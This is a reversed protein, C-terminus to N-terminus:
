RRLWAPSVYGVAGKHPGEAIRIRVADGIVADIAARDGEAILTARGAISLVGLAPGNRDAIAKQASYLAGPSQCLPVVDGSARDLIWLQGPTLEAVTAARASAPGAVNFAALMVIAVCLTAIWVAPTNFRSSIQAIRSPPAPPSEPLDGTSPARDTAEDALHTPLTPGNM